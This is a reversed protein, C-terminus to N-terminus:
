MTLIADTTMKISHTESIIWKSDIKCRAATADTGGSGGRGSQTHFIRWMTHAGLVTHSHTHTHVRRMTKM